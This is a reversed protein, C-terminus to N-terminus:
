SVTRCLVGDYLHNWDIKINKRNLIMDTTIYSPLNKIDIGTIYIIEELPYKAEFLSMILCNRLYKPSYDKWRGDNTINALKDFIDNISWESMQKYKKKHYTVLVYPSKIKKEKSEDSLRFLYDQLLKCVEIKREDIIIHKLNKDFSDWKLERLQSRELGLSITLLFAVINRDANRGKRFLEIASQVDEIPVVGFEKKRKTQEYEVLNQMRSESLIINNIRGHKNLEHLMNYVHSFNNEITKKSSKDKNRKCEKIFAKFDEIGLNEYCQKGESEFERKYIKNQSYLNFFTYLTSRYASWSEEKMGQEFKWERYRAIDCFFHTSKKEYLNEFSLYKFYKLETLGKGRPKFIDFWFVVYSELKNKHNKPNAAIGRDLLVYEYGNTLISFRQQEDEAYSIAQSIDKVELAKKGTKVEIILAENGITPIYIDCFGKVIRKGIKLHKMDYGFCKLFINIVVHHQVNAEQRSDEIRNFESRIEKIIDDM